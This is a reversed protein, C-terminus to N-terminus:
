QGPVGLSGYQNARGDLHGLEQERKGSVITVGGAADLTIKVPKIRGTEKGRESVFTPLFGTNQVIAAVRYMGGGLPGASAREFIIRPATGM